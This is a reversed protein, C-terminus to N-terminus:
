VDCPAGAAQASPFQQATVDQLAWQGPATPILTAKDVGYTVHGANGPVPSGDAKYSLVADYVCATVAAQTPTYSTVESRIVRVDGRNHYGLSAELRIFGQIHALEPNVVASLLAPWQPDNRLEAEAVAQVAARYSDLVLQQPAVTTSTSPAAHGKAPRRDSGCGALLSAGALLCATFKQAPTTISRRRDPAPGRM